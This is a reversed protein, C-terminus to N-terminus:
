GTRVVALFSRHPHEEEVFPAAVRAGVDSSGLVVRLCRRATRGFPTGCTCRNPLLLGESSRTRMSLLTAGPPPCRVCLDSGECGM